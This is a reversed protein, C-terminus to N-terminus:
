IKMKKEQINKIPLKKVLDKYAQQTKQQSIFKTCTNEWYMDFTDNKFQTYYKKVFPTMNSNIALQFENYTVKHLGSKTVTFFFVYDEKKVKNNLPNQFIDKYMTTFNDKNLIYFQPNDLIWQLVNINHFYLLYFSLFARDMPINSYQEKLFGGFELCNHDLSVMCLRTFNNEIPENNLYDQLYPKYKQVFAKLAPTVDDNKQNLVNKELIHPIAWPFKGVLFDIIHEYNELNFHKSRDKYLYIFSAIEQELKERKCFKYFDEHSTFYHILELNGSEIAWLFSVNSFHNPQEKNNYLSFYPITIECHYILNILGHNCLTNFWRRDDSEFHYCLYSDILEKLQVEQEQKNELTLIEYFNKYNFKENEM